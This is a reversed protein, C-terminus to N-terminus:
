RPEVSGLIEDLTRGSRRGRGREIEDATLPIQLDAPPQGRRAAAPLFLGIVRGADDCLEVTQM